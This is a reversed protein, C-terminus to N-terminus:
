QAPKVPVVVETNEWNMMLNEGADDFKMTFAEYQDLSSNVPVDVRFVDLADDYEYAGWQGVAKNAILTWHDEYPITYLSYTGAPLRKGALMLPATSTIETAENAGLRWLEGYPVLGGFIRRTEGTTPDKWRPASYTIKVYTDPNLKKSVLSLPSLRADPAPVVQQAAAPVAAAMSVFLLAVLVRQFATAVM